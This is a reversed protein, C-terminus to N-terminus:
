VAVPPILDALRTAYPISVRHEAGALYVQLAHWEEMSVDGGEGDEDALALLVRKTQEQSDSIPISLMRTENEPHLSTSTTTLLLGTPGEREILRPKLGKATKEVTEYRIRGESLLTRALYSTTEGSLGAGEYILLIRHSLPEDSYAL